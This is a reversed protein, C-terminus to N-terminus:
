RADDEALPGHDFAQRAAAVAANSTARSAGRSRERLGRRDHPQDGRDDGYRGSRDLEGRHIAQRLEEREGGGFSVQERKRSGVSQQPPHAGLLRGFKSDGLAEHNDLWHRPPAPTPPGANTSATTPAVTTATSPEPAPRVVPPATGVDEFRHRVKTHTARWGVLGSTCARHSDM